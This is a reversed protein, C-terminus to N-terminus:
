SKQLRIRKSPHNKPWMNGIESTKVPQNVLTKAEKNKFLSCASLSTAFLCALLVARGLKKKNKM